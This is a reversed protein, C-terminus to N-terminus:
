LLFKDVELMAEVVDVNLWGGSNLRRGGGRIMALSGAARDRRAMSVMPSGGLVGGPCIRPTGPGAAPDGYVGELINAALPLGWYADGMDVVDCPNQSPLVAARRRDTGM